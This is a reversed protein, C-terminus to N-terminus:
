FIQENKAPSKNLKRSKAKGEPIEDDDKVNNSAKKKM